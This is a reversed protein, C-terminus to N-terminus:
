LMDELLRAACGVLEECPRKQYFAPTRPEPTPPTPANEQLGLLDRCLIAQKEARFAEVYKQIRAYHEAKAEPVTHDYDGYRLGLAMCGGSIAGCIERMRGIGGGFSSSIRAATAEDMGLEASYAMLVSQACNYGSLFFERARKEHETM